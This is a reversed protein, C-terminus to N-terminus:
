VHEYVGLGQIWAARAGDSLLIRSINEAQEKTKTLAIMCGGRGGGTLKAGYAGHALASSVLQDLQQNSVGLQQLAQHANNMSEGLIELQNAIIAEKARKTEIGLRQIAQSALQKSTEFLHAVSKVAERTQGKIFYIADTGSAAAADIGSPNGHAIKESFNVYTMLEEKTFDKKIWDFFARTLAVAVAASSGMGRESPITSVISTAFPGTHFDQQLRHLLDKVNKLHSPVEELLGHYYSSILTNTENATIEVQVKAGAFPFAIAPEGYVVSHEGMLIIKGTAIGTGISM